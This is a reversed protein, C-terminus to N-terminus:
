GFFLFLLIIRTEEPETSVLAEHAKSAIEYAYAGEELM